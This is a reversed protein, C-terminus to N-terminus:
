VSLCLLQGLQMSSLIYGYYHAAIFGDVSYLSIESGSLLIHDIQYQFFSVM